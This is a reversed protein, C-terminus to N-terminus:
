SRMLKLLKGDLSSPVAVDERRARLLVPLVSELWEELPPANQLSGCWWRLSRTFRSCWNLQWRAKALGVSAWCCSSAAGNRWYRSRSVCWNKGADVSPLPILPVVGIQSPNSRKFLRRWKRLPLVPDLIIM